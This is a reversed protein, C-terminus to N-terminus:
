LKHTELFNTRQMQNPSRPEMMLPPTFNPSTSQWASMLGTGRELSSRLESYLHTFIISVQSIAGNLGSVCLQWAYSFWYFSYFNDWFIRIITFYFDRDWSDTLLLYTTQQSQNQCKYCKFLLANRMILIIFNNTKKWISLYLLLLFNLFKRWSMNM